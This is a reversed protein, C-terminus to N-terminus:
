GTARGSLTIPAFGLIAYGRTVGQLPPMAGAIGEVMHTVTRTEKEGTRKGLRDDFENFTVTDGIKYHRDNVRIDFPQGTRIRAFQEPWSKVDHHAM